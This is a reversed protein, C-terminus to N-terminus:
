PERIAESGYRQLPSLVFEIIRRTGTKVEAMVTMGPTLAVPRGAVDITTAALTIRADYVLGLAETEVADQSITSLRGPLTGYRTFNFADLKIEVPQGEVLRGMDKNQLSARVELAANDPVIVMVPVAPQVVGGVTHVALQQVTGAVPARLVQRANRAEARHLALDIQTLATEAETLAATSHRLRDAVLFALSKEISTLATEAEAMKNRRIDLEHTAEILSAHIQQYQPRSTLGLDYLKASSADRDQLIPLIEESKALEAAASSRVSRLRDREALVSAREADFAALDSRLQTEHLRILREPAGLGTTDFRPADGSLGAIFASLRAAELAQDLRNQRLQGLDVESDTPDLEILAAGAAVRQGDAVHIARVVGIEFPQILKNGETAVVRGPAVAVVDVRGLVAWGIALCFLGALVLALSRGAPNAPTELIELAAPLFELEAGQSKGGQSSAPARGFFPILNAM